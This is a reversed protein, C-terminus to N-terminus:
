TFPWASLWSGRYITLTETTHSNQGFRLALNGSSSPEISGWLQVAGTASEPGNFDGALTTVFEKTIGGAGVLDVLWLRFDNVTVTSADFDFKSGDIAAGANVMVLAQVAYRTGGILPITLGLPAMADSVSTVDASLQSLLLSSTASGGGPGGGTISGLSM